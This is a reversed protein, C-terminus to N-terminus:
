RFSEVGESFYFNLVLSDVISEVPAHDDTFVLESAVTPVLGEGALALAEALLPYASADLAALNAGLNGAETPQATGVLITNFSRPVDITHVSPFVALMTATLAEVLRRDTPTRGVNIVAVGDPTLHDRVETFFERTTLQWPVYPVRYADIGVVAYSRASNALAFRGDEVIVNLTPMHAEDMEFFRRGAEVVGPDIEIGDILIDSYVAVYQRAVTGAALGVLALGGARVRAPDFPAANFYPAALFFDWTGATLIRTPHWESHIGQGENLLLYRTQAMPSAPDDVEVVQIYNYPSDDEYLLATRPPAPKLPEALILAALAALVVPMWLLQLAARRNTMALGGFGIAMLAAAFILFTRTTGVSPILILVPTFTGVLSGLTSIAYLWGATGGAAALERISLRIAFPSVCGLLTVPAAFLVLVAVFSGVAVGADLAAVASAAGWLVPRAVLPSLGSLFASWTIIRYFTVASPSRDAWRGGVFYGVTLYLLILGIINAWVLNSTGFVSGLLRSASLEVALTTVGAAFVAVYVYRRQLASLRAVPHYRSADVRSAEGGREMSEMSHLPASSAAQQRGPSGPPTEQDM